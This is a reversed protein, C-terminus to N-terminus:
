NAEYGDPLKRFELFGLSLGGRVYWEVGEQQATAETDPTGWEEGIVVPTANVGVQRLTEARAKARRVDNVGLKLGVEVVMVRDGKWWILDALLPDNQPDIDIGQRFLPMLWRGVQERVHPEGKGGGTGGYFLAPARAVIEREYREGERRGTEGQQWNELRELRRLADRSIQVLEQVIRALEDVREDTRRQAEALEEVRQETRRQAEALEEVRQETRRQAEALEEVVNVLQRFQAPLELLERTLIVQRMREQWEPKEELIRLMDEFDRVTFAM